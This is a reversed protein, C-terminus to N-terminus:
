KADAENQVHKPYPRELAVDVLAEWHTQDVPELLGRVPQWDDAFAAVQEHYLLPDQSM